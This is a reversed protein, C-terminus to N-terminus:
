LRYVCNKICLSKKTQSLRTGKRRRQGEMKGIIRIKDVVQLGPHGTDGQKHLPRLKMM